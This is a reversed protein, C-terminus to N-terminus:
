EMLFSPNISLYGRENKCIGAWDLVACVVFGPGFASEGAKVGHVTSAIYGEVSNLPLQVEGLKCSRANGKKVRGSNDKLLEM